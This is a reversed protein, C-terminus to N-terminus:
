NNEFNAKKLKEKSDDSLPNFPERTNSSIGLGRLTMVYETVAILNGDALCADLM